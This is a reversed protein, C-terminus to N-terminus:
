HVESDVVSVSSAGHWPINVVSRSDDTLNLTLNTGLIRVRDRRYLTTLRCAGLISCEKRMGRDQAADRRTCIKWRSADRRTCMKWRSSATRKEDCEQENRMGSGRAEQGHGKGNSCRARDRGEGGRRWKLACVM